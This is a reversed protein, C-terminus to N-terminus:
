RVRDAYLGAASLLTGDPLPADPSILEREGVEEWGGPEGKVGEVRERERERERERVCVCVCVCVCVGVPSM